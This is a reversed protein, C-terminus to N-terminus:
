KTWSQTGHGDHWAYFSQSRFAGLSTFSKAFQWLNIENGKEMKAVADKVQKELNTPYQNDNKTYYNCVETTLTFGSPVPIGLKCMQAINAGKGGLLNRMGADGDAHSDGFSYVFKNM